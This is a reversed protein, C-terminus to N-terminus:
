LVTFVGRRSYLLIGCLEQISCRFGTPRWLLPLSWPSATDRCHCGRGGETWCGYQDVSMQASKRNEYRPAYADFV